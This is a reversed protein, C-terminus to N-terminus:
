QERELLYADIRDALRDVRALTDRMGGIAGRMEGIEREIHSLAKESPLHEIREELKAVTVQTEQLAEGVDGFRKRQDKDLAEIQQQTVRDRNMAWAYLGVAAWAVFKLIDLGVDWTM